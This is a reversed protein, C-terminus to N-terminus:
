NSSTCKLCEANFNGILISSTSDQDNIHGLPLDFNFCFADLEQHNQSAFSYISTFFCKENNVTIGTALYEQMNSLYNRILSPPEKSYTCVGGRKSNSPHDATPMSYGHAMKIGTALNLAQLNKLIGIQKPTVPGPSHHQQQPALISNTKRPM